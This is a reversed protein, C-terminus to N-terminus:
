VEQLTFLDAVLLYETEEGPLALTGGYRKGGLGTISLLWGVKGSQARYYKGIVFERM